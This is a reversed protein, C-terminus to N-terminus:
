VQFVKCILHLCVNHIYRIMFSKKEFSTKITSDIMLLLAGSILAGHLRVSAKIHKGILNESTYLLVSTFNTSFVLESLLLSKLEKNVLNVSTYLLVQTNNTSFVLESLREIILFKVTAM